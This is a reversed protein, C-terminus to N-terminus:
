LVSSLMLLLLCHSVLVQSAVNFVEDGEEEGHSREGGNSLRQNPTFFVYCFYEVVNFTM